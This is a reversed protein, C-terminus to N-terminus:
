DESGAEEIIREIIDHWDKAKENFDPQYPRFQQDDLWESLEKLPEIHKAPIHVKKIPKLTKMGGDGKRLTQRQHKQKKEEALCEPCRLFGYKDKKIVSNFFDCRFNKEGQCYILFSCSFKQKERCYKKDLDINFNMKGEAEM